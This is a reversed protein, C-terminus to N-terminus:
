QITVWPWTKIYERLEHPDMRLIKEFEINNQSFYPNSSWSNQLRDHELHYLPGKVRGWRLGMKEARVVREKDEPGWSIFHENEMGCEIFKQKNWFVAGGKAVEGRHPCYCQAPTLWDINKEDEIKKHLEKPVHYTFSDFPTCLDLENTKIKNYAEVYQNLPLVVDADYNVICSTVSQKAMMNLLKTRHFLDSESKIFNYIVNNNLFESIYPYLKQTNDEEALIINADVNGILYRLTTLIVKIRSVTDYKMPITFTLDQLDIKSRERLAAPKHVVNIMQPSVLKLEVERHCADPIFDSYASVNIRYGDKYLKALNDVSYEVKNSSLHMVSQEFSLFLPKDKQFFPKQKDMLAELTSLDQFPLQGIFPIVDAVRYLSGLVNFPSSFLHQSTSWDYLFVNDDLDYYEPLLEYKNLTQCFGTNKGLLISFGLVPPQLKLCETVLSLSFTKTFISNDPCFFVYDFSSLLATIHTRFDQEHIFQLFAYQRYEQVLQEYQEAHLSSSANYLIRIQATDADLCHLLLSRLTADLQLARDKAIILIICNM